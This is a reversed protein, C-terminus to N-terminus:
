SIVGSTLTDFFEKILESFIQHASIFPRWKFLQPVIRYGLRYLDYFSSPVYHSFAFPSAVIGGVVIMEEQTVLSYIGEGFVRRNSTIRELSGHLNYLCFGVEAQLATVLPLLVLTNDADDSDIDCPGAPVIHGPSMRVQYGSATTIEHFAAKLNNHGHPISIVPSFSTRGYRNASLIRDGVMVDQIFVSAGSELLVIESGAFCIAKKAATEEELEAFTECYEGATQIGDDTLGCVCGTTANGCVGNSSCTEGMIDCFIGERNMYSEQSFPGRGGYAGGLFFLGPGAIESNFFEVTHGWMGLYETRGDVVTETWTETSYFTM